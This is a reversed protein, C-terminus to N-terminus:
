RYRKQPSCAASSRFCSSPHRDARRQRRPRRRARARGHRGHLRAGSASQVRSLRRGIGRRAVDVFAVSPVGARLGFWAFVALPPLITGGALGDLGDTLNVAHTTALIVLLSTLYWVVHPVHLTADGFTFVVDRLAPNSDRSALALFAIGAVFTLAFKERARLGRNRGRASRSTTTPSASRAAYRHRARRAGADRSRPSRDGRRRARSRLALRGDHANRDQRRADQARRRLRTAPVFRATLRRHAPQGLALTAALVAAFLLALRLAIADRSARACRSESGPRALRARRDADARRRQWASQEAAGDAVRARRIGDSAGLVKAIGLDNADVVVAGAGTRLALERAVGDPDRPGLVITREFPPLTGTYGDIASIAEGLVRYFVGRKGLLRGAVHALAAALVRPAGVDDIVLQMSEPQNM